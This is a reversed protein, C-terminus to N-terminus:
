QYSVMFNVNRSFSGEKNSFITRNLSDYPASLRVNQFSSKKLKESINSETERPYEFSYEEKKIKVNKENKLEPM